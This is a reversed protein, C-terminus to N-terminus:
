FSKKLISQAEGILYLSGTVCIFSHNNENYKENIRKAADLAGSVNEVSFLKSKEVFKEAIRRLNAVTESRSNEPETLILNEALPFLIKAIEDLDKDKMVGFIMTINESAFNERLYKGLAKAGAVNHAGDFLFKTKRYERWELRGAHEATELGEVIDQNSIEFKFDSILIEALAVAVCANERQHEGALSLSINPYFDKKTKISIELSDEIFIQCAAFIPAVKKEKCRKLIQKLASSKQNALVVKSNEHIIAAKEAAIKALTDGLIQQHDFDIPTIAAIEARAATVSDFRGGLGTELIALEIKTEGFASVAIATMQEFFTPVSELENQVVLNESIKRVLTAHEAFKEESIKAGNIRIRECISILHPSIYLGTEIGAARCIAELFACTSGKGNTGAVQIKLFNREPNGLAVFLKETAELGFKMAAVENGLSYLYNVSEEFNM